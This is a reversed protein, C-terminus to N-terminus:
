KKGIRMIGGEHIIIEGTPSVQNSSDPQAFSTITGYVSMIGDFYITQKATVFGLSDIDLRGCQNIGRNSNISLSQALDPYHQRGSPIFVNINRDPVNNYKWNGATNWSSSINGTWIGTGLMANIGTIANGGDDDGGKFLITQSVQGQYNNFGLGDGESSNCYFNQNNVTLPSNFTLSGGDGDSGSCFVPSGYTFANLSELSLGDGNGGSCYVTKENLSTISTLFHVGDGSGGSCYHWPDNIPHDHSYNGSGDGPGGSLYANQDNLTTTESIFSLGDGDGGAFILYYDFPFGYFVKWAFGDGNNGNCYLDHDNLTLVVSEKVRAGDGSGGFYQGYVLSPVLILLIYILRRMKLHFSNMVPVPNLSCDPM